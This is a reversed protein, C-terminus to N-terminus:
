ALGILQGLAGLADFPDLPGFVNFIHLTLVAVGLLYWRKNARLVDTIPRRGAKLLLGDALLVGGITAFIVDVTVDLRM